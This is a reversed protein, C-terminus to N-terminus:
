TKVDAVFLLQHHVCCGSIAADEGEGLLWTGNTRWGYLHVRSAHWATLISSDGISLSAAWCARIMGIPIGVRYNSTWISHSIIWIELPERCRSWRWPTL